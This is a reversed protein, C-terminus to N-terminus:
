IKMRKELARIKRPHWSGIIKVFRKQSEKLVYMRWYDPDVRESPNHIRGTNIRLENLLKKVKKLKEKDKQVLQIYFKGKKTKPIGGEADFFGRIYGIKERKSKLILPDLNFDLFNALTELVYVKRDKGEKYIWSSYGLKKLLQQLIKLWETGKQSIRIRKGKNLTGDHIAGLLYAQIESKSLPAQRITESSEGAEFFFLTAQQNVASSAKNGMNYYELMLLELYVLKGLM